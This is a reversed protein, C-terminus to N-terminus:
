IICFPHSSSTGISVDEATLCDVFKLRRNTKISKERKLQSSSPGDDASRTRSTLPKSKQHRVVFLPESEPSILCVHPFDIVGCEGNVIDSAEKRISDSTARVWSRSVSQEVGDLDMEGLVMEDLEVDDRREKKDVSSGTEVDAIEQREGDQEVVTWASKSVQSRDIQLPYSGPSPAHVHTYSFASSSTSSKRTGSPIPRSASKTSTSNDVAITAATKKSFGDQSESDSASDWADDEVWDMMYSSFRTSPNLGIHPRAPPPRAMMIRPFFPQNDTASPPRYRSSLAM